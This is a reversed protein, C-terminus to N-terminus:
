GRGNGQVALFVLGVACVALALLAAGIIVPARIALFGLGSLVGRLRSIPRSAALTETLTQRTVASVSSNM